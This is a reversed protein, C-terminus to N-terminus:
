RADTETRRDTRGVPRDTLFPQLLRYSNLVYGVLGFVVHSWGARDQTATKLKRWSIKFRQLGCKTRRGSRKGLREKTATKEAAKNPGTYILAKITTVCHLWWKRSLKLLYALLYTLFNRSAWSFCVLRYAVPESAALQIRWQHKRTKM